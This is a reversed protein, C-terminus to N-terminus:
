HYFSTANNETCTLALELSFKSVKFKQSKKTFDQRTKPFINFDHQRESHKQLTMKSGGFIAFTSSQNSRSSLKRLKRQCTKKVKKQLSIDIIKRWLFLIHPPYHTGTAYFFRKMCKCQTEDNEIKAFCSYCIPPYHPGLRQACCRMPTYHHRYCEFFISPVRM